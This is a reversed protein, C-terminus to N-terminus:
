KDELAKQYKKLDKLFLKTHSYLTHNIKSMDLSEKEWKEILERLRTRIGDMKDFWYTEEPSSM